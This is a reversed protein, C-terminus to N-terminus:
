CTHIYCFPFLSLPEYKNKNNPEGQSFATFGITKNNTFFTSNEPLFWRWTGICFCSNMDRWEERETGGREERKVQKRSM